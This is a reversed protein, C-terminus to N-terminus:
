LIVCNSFVNKAVDSVNKCKDDRSTYKKLCGECCFFKTQAEVCIVEAFTKWMTKKCQYCVYEHLDPFAARLPKYAPLTM